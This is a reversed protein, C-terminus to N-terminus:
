QDSDIRYFKIKKDGFIQKLMRYRIDYYVRELVNKPTYYDMDRYLRVIRLLDIRTM